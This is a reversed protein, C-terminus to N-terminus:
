ITNDDETEPRNKGYMEQVKKRKDDWKTKIEEKDREQKQDLMAQYDTDSNADNMLNDSHRGRLRKMSCVYFWTFLFCVVQVGSVALAVITAINVNTQIVTKLKEAAAQNDNQNEAAWSIIQDQYVYAMVALVAQILCTFGLLWMFCVMGTKSRKSYLGILSFLLELIGLVIFGVEFVGPNGTEALLWGGIGCFGASVVVLLVNSVRQLFLLFANGKM